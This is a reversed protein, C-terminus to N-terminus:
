SAEKALRFRDAGRDMDDAIAIGHIRRAIARATKADIPKGQVKPMRVAIEVIRAVIRLSGFGPTSALASLFEAGDATFRIRQSQFVAVIEEPTFLRKGRDSGSQIDETADYRAIMRSTFQGYFMGTDATQRRLDITGALILPCEAEDYIDRLVELAQASLKHAEDVLIPRGSGRLHEIVLQQIVGANSRVPVSCQRALLSTLSPASRAREICRVYISGTYMAHAAKLTLTKGIGAPGVIEGIAKVQVATRIVALMRLSINTEVFGEPRAFSRASTEREMYENVARAVREQDGRANGTCFNSLTAESFGAGLSRSVSKLSRRHERRWRDFDRAVADIETPELPRDTPLMRASRIIRADQAIQDLISNNRAADSM